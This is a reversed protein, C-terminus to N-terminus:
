AKIVQGLDESAAIMKGQAKNRDINEVDKQLGPHVLIAGPQQKYSQRYKRIHEPTTERPPQYLDPRMCM